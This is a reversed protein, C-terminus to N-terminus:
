ERNRTVAAALAALVEDVHELVWFHGADAITHLRAGAIRSALYKTAEPPVIRDALGQWLMTPATIAAYDVDWPRAYIALDDLGGQVGQRIAEDLSSRLLRRVQPRKLIVKDTEPLPFGAARTWLEPALRYAKASLRSLFGLTWPWSQLDLFFRRFGPAIVGETSAIVEAVPGIPSVVALATCRRGVTAALAVAYPSGGSVGLIAFRELGLEDVLQRLSAARRELTPHRDSPSRGYGPRDPCILRLGLARAPADAISYILRSDPAGHLALVQRGNPDGYEAVAVRLGDPLVLFRLTNPDAGM